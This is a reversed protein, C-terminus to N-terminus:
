ASLGVVVIVVSILRKFAELTWSLAVALAGLNHTADPNNPQSQLLARYLRETDQLKGKKFAAIGQQVAQDIILYMELIWAEEM